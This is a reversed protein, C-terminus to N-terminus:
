PVYRSSPFGFIANTYPHRHLNPTGSYIKTLNTLIFTSLRSFITSYTVRPPFDSYTTPTHTSTSTQLAQTFGKTLISTSLRSFNSLYTVRPTSDSYLLPTPTVTSTPLPQTFDKTLTSTSLRSLITPYTVRPPSDSSSTATPTVNSTPLAQTFGNTLSSTSLRSFIRHYTTRPSPNSFTPKSGRPGESLDWFNKQFITRKFLKHSFVYTPAATFIPITSRM